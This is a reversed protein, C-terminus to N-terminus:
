TESKEPNSFLQRVAEVVTARRRATWLLATNQVLLMLQEADFRSSIKGAEQAERIAQKNRAADSGGPIRRGSGDRELRHWMVVRAVDPNQENADFLKGAYESLEESNIPINTLTEAVIFNLM